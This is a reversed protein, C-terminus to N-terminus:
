DNAVSIRNDLLPTSWRCTFTLSFHLHPMVITLWNGEVPLGVM